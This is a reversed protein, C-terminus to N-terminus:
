TLLFVVNGYISEIRIVYYVIRVPFRSWLWDYKDSLITLCSGLRSAGNGLIHVLISIRRDERGM